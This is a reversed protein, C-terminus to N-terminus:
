QKTRRATGIIYLAAEVSWGRLAMYRAATFPGLSRAISRARAMQQLKECRFTYAEKLAGM